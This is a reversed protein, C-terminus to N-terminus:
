EDLNWFKVNDITAHFQEGYSSIIIQNTDYWVEDYQVFALPKDNRYVAFKDGKVLLLIKAPVELNDKDRGRAIASNANGWFAWDGYVPNFNFKNNDDLGVIRYEIGMERLNNIIYPDIEYQLAFDHAKFQQSGLTMEFKGELELKGDDTIYESVDADQGNVVLYGPEQIPASFDDEFQPPKGEIEALLPEAFETVWEPYPTPSPTPTLAVSEGELTSLDWFKVNDIAVRATVGNSSLYIYNSPGTFNKDQFYTFPQQNLYVAFQNEHAILMVNTLRGPDMEFTTGRDIPSIDKGIFWEHHYPELSLKYNDPNKSESGRFDIGIDTTEDGGRIDPVFDFQLVFNKSKFQEKGLYFRKKNFAELHLEGGSVFESLDAENSVFVRTWDTSGIGGSMTMIELYGPEEKISAFDDEFDPPRDDISILIPEAFDTVWKPYPTPSSIPTPTISVLNTAITKTATPTATAGQFAIAPLQVRGRLGFYAGATILIFLIPLAYWGWRLLKVPGRRSAGVASALLRPTDKYGPDVQVIQQLLEIAQYYDKGELAAQAQMYKAQIAGMQQSKDLAAKAAGQDEPYLALYKQWIAIAEEWDENKEQRRAQDPLTALLYARQSVKVGALKKELADDRGTLALADQLAAIAAEWDGSTQAEESRVTLVAIAKAQKEDMVQQVRNTLEEDEPLYGLATRFALLAAEDQGASLKAEAQQRYIVGLRERAASHEPNIALVAKYFEIARDPEGEDRARDGLALQAKCYGGLAAIDEGDLALANEFASAASEYEVAELLLTGVSVRAKINGPDVELAQRFSELANERQGQEWYEEGIEIYRNAIPSVEVLEERVRELPRNQRLWLRLLEVVFHNNETLVDKERMHVLAANLDHESFRVRQARLTQALMAPDSCEPSRALCALVWKELDSAEDWAFKLNVTGREIVSVLVADVDPRQIVRVGTKQCVSFLEHCVLQTFYPHGATVEYIRQVAGQEYELVGEVPKTILQSCDEADLFSIKKYLASKFFDTYAAQMNELKQGSSGISFIFSFGEMEMMRRLTQILPIALKEQISPLELTDFEDFTLLLMRRGLVSQVEPLFSTFLIEPDEAFAGRDPTSITLGHRGKLTRTIERALWWLFRDLTTNSRGQLDFFVQLYRDPLFNPIQKLVSTKGVRRQGHIVLIHDVYKGMLSREIWGFVDKRGFFMDAEVVPAGAIYPNLLDNM